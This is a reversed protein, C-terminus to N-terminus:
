EDGTGKVAQDQGTAKLWELVKHPEFRVAQGVAVWPMGAKRLNDIHCASCSLRQALTQKDVLLQAGSGIADRVASSVLSSLREPTCVIVEGPIDDDSM